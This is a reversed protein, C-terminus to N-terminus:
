GLFLGFVACDFNWPPWRRFGCRGKLLLWDGFHHGSGGSARSNNLRAKLCCYRQAPIKRLTRKVSVREKPTEQEGRPKPKHRMMGRGHISTLDGPMNSRKKCRAVRKARLKFRVPEEIRICHWSPRCRRYWPILVKWSQSSTAHRGM